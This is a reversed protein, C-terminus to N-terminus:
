KPALSMIRELNARFVALTEGDVEHAGYWAKDFAAVNRSFSALAEPHARGKRGFENEYDRNSKYLALVILELRALHSLGALYLARLATRLDGKLTLDRAVALWEDSPLLDARVAGGSLDPVAARPSAAPTEKAGARRRSRWLLIALAFVAAGALGALLWTVPAAVGRAPRAGPEEDGSDPFLDRLWAVIKGIWEGIKRIGKGIARFADRIFGAIWSPEEDDRDRDRPLRWDYEPQGVVDGIARDLDAPSVTGRAPAPPAADRGDARCPLVGGALILLLLAAACARGKAPLARLEARLDTGTELSEGLFCRLVYAAKVIPDVCLWSLALVAALFTTNFIAWPGLAITDIGLLTRALWPLLPLAIAVDVLVFLWFASVIGLLLHNQAPWLAAQRLARRVLAALGGGGDDLATASQYFAVAWGLPLLAIAALPLVFLGTAHLLAQRAALHVLRGPSPLPTPEGRLRGGLGRAFIAHWAKMWVFLLALGMAAGPLLAPARSGRSMSAVFFLLGAVFPLSGALYALLIGPPSGRLLHVAEELLDTAGKGRRLRGRRGTM